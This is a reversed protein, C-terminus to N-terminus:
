HGADLNDHKLRAQRRNFEASQQAYTQAMEAALEEAARCTVLHMAVSYSVVLALCMCGFALLRGAVRPQRRAIFVVLTLVLLVLGVKFGALGLWGFHKLLLCAVPNAEYFAGYSSRLLWWTLTLDAVSLLVFLLQKRPHAMLNRMAALVLNKGNPHEIM